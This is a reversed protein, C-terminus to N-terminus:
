LALDRTRQRKAKLMKKLFMNRKLSSIHDVFLIGNIHDIEHQICISLVGDADLSHEGGSQDLYEVTVAAPREVDAYLDPLSLCGEETTVRASSQKVIKPNAMLIPRPEENGSGKRYGAVDIVIVRRLIGVQPAALGIGRNEYMTELMDNMLARVEGDIQDVPKCKTKLVPDPAWVIELLAM